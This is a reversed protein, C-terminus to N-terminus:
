EKRVASSSEMWLDTSLALPFVRVEALMSVMKVAWSGVLCSVLKGASLDVMMWNDM